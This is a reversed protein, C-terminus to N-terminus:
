EQRPADEPLSQSTGFVDATKGPLINKIKYDHIQKVRQFLAMEIDKLAVERKLVLVTESQIITQYFDRYLFLLLSALILSVLSMIILRTWLFPTLEIKNKIKM